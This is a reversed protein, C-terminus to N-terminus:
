TGYTPIEARIRTPGGHPSSIEFVGAAVAVRDALGQLGRGTALTAGGRGNDTIQVTLAQEAWVSISAWGAQAHRTINTLCEASVFYVLARTDEPLATLDGRLELRVPLGAHAVLEELAAPLSNVSVAVPNLGQALGNLEAIVHDLEAIAPAVVNQDHRHLTLRVRELRAIPGARLRDALTQREGDEVTMLRSASRRVEAARRRVQAELRISEM